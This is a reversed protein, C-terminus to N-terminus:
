FESRVTRSGATWLGILVCVVVNRFGDCRSGRPCEPKGLMGQLVRTLNNLLQSLRQEFRTECELYLKM